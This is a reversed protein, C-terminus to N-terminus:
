DSDRVCRVTAARVASPVCLTYVAYAHARFHIMLRNHVTYVGKRGVVAEAARSSIV